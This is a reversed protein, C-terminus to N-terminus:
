ITRNRSHPLHRLYGADQPPRMGRQLLQRLLRGASHDVGELRAERLQRLVATQLVPQRSGALM